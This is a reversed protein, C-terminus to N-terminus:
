FSMIYFDNIEGATINSVTWAAEKVISLRSHELLRGLVDLVGSNIVADTQLDNGTVINGVARLAPTLVTSDEYLLAVLRPVCGLVNLITMIYFLFFLFSLISTFSMGTDLVAQIKENSGDTLYSLAWCTDALMDKDNYHLLKALVPLAPKM